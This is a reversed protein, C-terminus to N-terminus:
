SSARGRPRRLDQDGYYRRRTAQTIGYEVEFILRPRTRAVTGMHFGFPDEAFGYGAAGCVRVMRSAGYFGIIDAHSKGVFPTFQHSLRRKRHSGLVYVHAGSDTDVDTLYFFFKLSRWDNMDFHFKDQSARRRDAEDCGEAPFSWWMRSSIVIPEARLYRSAIGILAPDAQIAKADPCDDLADLYHGIVIPRGAALQADRHDRPLFALKRDFNGYCPTREAFANM